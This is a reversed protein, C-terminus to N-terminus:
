WGPNQELNPNRFTEDLTIPIALMANRWPRKEVLFREYKFGSGDRIARMGYINQETQAAIKWRRVDWFRQNEAFLEIRRENRIRTRMQSQSLGAPLAPM